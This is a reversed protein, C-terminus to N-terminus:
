PLPRSRGRRRRPLSSTAADERVKDLRTSILYQEVAIKVMAAVPLALLAGTVGALTGGVMVAIIVAAPSLDIARTMVRPQVLYNEVTPLRHPLRRGGRGHGGGAPRRGGGDAGSRHLCRRHPHPRDAGGVPRPGAPLRAGDAPVRRLQRGRRRPLSHPKRPHLRIHAGDVRQGSAPPRSEGGPARAEAGLEEDPPHRLRLVPRAGGGHLPQLDDGGGHRGHPDGDGPGRDDDGLVPAPRRAGRRPRGHGAVGGPDAASHLRHRGGPRHRHPRHRPSRRGARHHGPRHDDGVGLGPRSGPRRLVPHDAPPRPRDRALRVRGAVCGAPAAGDAPRRRGTPPPSRRRRGPCCRCPGEM